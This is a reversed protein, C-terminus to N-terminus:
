TCTSVAYRSLVRWQGDVNAELQYVDNAYWGGVALYGVRMPAAGQGVATDSSVVVRLDPVGDGDLDVTLTLRDTLTNEFLDWLPALFRRRQVTVRARAPDLPASSAFVALLVGAPPQPLMVEAGTGDPTEGACAGGSFSVKRISAPLLGKETVAWAALRTDLRLTEVFGAAGPRAWSLEHGGDKLVGFNAKVAARQQKAMEFVGALEGLDRGDFTIGYPTGEGPVPKRAQALPGGAWGVAWRGQSFYSPAVAPPEPRDGLRGRARAQRRALTAGLEGLVSGPFPERPALAFDTTFAPQLAPLAAIRAEAWARLPALEPRAEDGIASRLQRLLAQLDSYTYLTPSLALHREAQQVLLDLLRRAEPVQREIESTWSRSGVGRDGALRLLALGAEAAEAEIQTRTVPTRALYSCDVHGTPGGEAAVVRCWRGSEELLRVPQNLRWRLLVEATVTAAARLNLSSASVYRLAAADQGRAQAALLALALALTAALPISRAAGAVRERRHM